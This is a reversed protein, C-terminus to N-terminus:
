KIAVTISPHENRHTDMFDENNDAKKNRTSVGASKETLPAQSSSFSNTVTM